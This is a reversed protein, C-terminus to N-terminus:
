KSANAALMKATFVIGSDISAPNFIAVLKLVCVRYTRFGLLRVSTSDSSLNLIKTNVVIRESCSEASCTPNAFCLCTLEYKEPHYQPSNWMM